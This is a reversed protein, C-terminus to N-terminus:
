ISLEASMGQRACNTTYLKVEYLGNESIGYPSSTAWSVCMQRDRARECSTWKPIGSQTICDRWYSRTQLETIGRALTINRAGYLFEMYDAEARLTTPDVKNDVM